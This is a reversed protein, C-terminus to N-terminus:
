RSRRALWASFEREHPPAHYRSEVPAARLPSRPPPRGAPGTLRGPPPGGQKVFSTDATGVFCRPVHPFKVSVVYYYTGQPFEATVGDRGNCEDLDGLGPVYEYDLSYTGDPTGGPGGGDRAHKLRWSPRMADQVYIPFGDAAWGILVPRQ